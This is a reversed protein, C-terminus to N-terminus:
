SFSYLLNSDSFTNTIFNFIKKDEEYNNEEKRFSNVILSQRVKLINVMHTKGNMIHNQFTMTKLGENTLIIEIMIHSRNERTSNSTHIIVDEVGEIDKVKEFIKTINELESNYDFDKKFKTIIFHRM